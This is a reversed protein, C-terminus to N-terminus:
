QSVAGRYLWRSDPRRHVYLPARRGHARLDRCTQSQRATPADDSAEWPPPLQAKRQFYGSAATTATSPRSSAKVEHLSMGSINVALMSRSRLKFLSPYHNLKGTSGG